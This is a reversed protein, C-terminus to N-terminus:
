RLIKKVIEQTSDKWVLGIPQWNDLWDSLSDENFGDTMIGMKRLQIANCIQEYQKRVPISWLRKGLALAESTTSFGAATIIGECKSLDKKFTPTGIKITEVNTPSVMTDHCYLKFRRESFREESLTRLITETSITPLYILTFDGDKSEEFLSREVLPQHTGDGGEYTLPIYEDCKAFRRIFTESLYDRKSPKLIKDLVIAYQNGFGVSRVKGKRAAWASIPEFDSVVVDYSSVDTRIDKVFQTVEANKLTTYWDVSGNGDTYMTLGEYHRLIPFPISVQSNNGSTIIDVEAGAEKLASILLTSRTAHGNGNLQIGFLVKM